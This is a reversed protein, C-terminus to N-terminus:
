SFRSKWDANGEPHVGETISYDDNPYSDKYYDLYYTYWDRHPYDWNVNRTYFDFVQEDFTEEGFYNQWWLIPDQASQGEVWSDRMDEASAWFTTLYKPFIFAGYQYYESLAGSDYYDFFYLSKHPLFAFGFLYAAYVPDDPYVENEIWIATSEWYWASLGEYPYTGCAHQVAHFFEHSLTGFSQSDILAPLNIVIMPWGEEDATYYGALGYSSPTGSGSDGVYINFLYNDSHLPPPFQLEVIELEWTRELEALLQQAYEEDISIDSGWRLAFNESLAANPVNYHDVELNQDSPPPPPIDVKFSSPDFHELTYCPEHAWLLSSLWIM